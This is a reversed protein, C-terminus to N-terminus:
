PKIGKGDVPEALVASSLRQAQTTTSSTGAARTFTTVISGSGLGGANGSGTLTGNFIQVTGGNNIRVTYNTEAVGCSSWYNVRVTYTGALAGGVPWTVNENRVGDISCAANSDLDLRGGSPVQRRGYYVEDGAPDVVHLDVDSDADWSLTIQVDGTGVRIVEIDLPVYPGVAGSADAAAFRLEFEDVPIEQPLSLRVTSATQAFGLPLEFYGELFGNTATAVGDARIGVSMYVTTFAVGSTLNVALTGGNVVSDNGDADISPGGNSEPAPGSRLAADGSASTLALAIDEISL